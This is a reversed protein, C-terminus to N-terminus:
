AAWYEPYAIWNHRLDAGDPKGSEYQGLLAKRRKLARELSPKFLDELEEQYDEAADYNATLLEVACQGALRGSLIAANIGAGTVPNTLGAADGALLVTTKGLLGFPKLMGGAPIVGGTHYFIKEGVRGSKILDKHLDALLSKLKHKHEPLLGLGINAHNEKPFLWGYGGIFGASLFIDTSNSPELLPVTIQRTEAIHLNIQNIAKGVVSKPGDAGILVKAEIETGDALLFRGNQTVDKICAGFRCDAGDARASQALSSDFAERDIMLGPFNETKEGRGDEVFTVMSQITQQSTASLCGVDIGVTSPVFEACQVPKGAEAKREVAIVTYGAKAVERAACSGAPGLGAILVDVKTTATM